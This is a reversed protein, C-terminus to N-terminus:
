RNATKKLYKLYDSDTKLIMTSNSNMTQRYSNLTQIFSYFEPDRGFSDAYIKTAEADAEGMIQQAKRYAESEIEQLRKERDGDIKARQGEGESRYKEAIRTREAIMRDYVKKRVEEIYDIHKIQVDILQIGYQPVTQGAIELIQRRIDTRGHQIPDLGTIPISEEEDDGIAMMTRNTNRVVEILKNKTIIDRSVGDIIDDLRSQANAENNVTQYFKLPDNIRWRAFTNVWIYRKDETSIQNPDGDWEIIRKEFRVVDQIFPVKFHLGANKVPQGVPEGFQLLISQETEDLTYFSSNLVILVLFIIIISAIQAIKM